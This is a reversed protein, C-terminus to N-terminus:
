WETKVKTFLDLWEPNMDEILSIKKKRSGAKIQKERAIAEEISYFSEFYVLETLNYKATFSSPHIKQRHELIRAILDSTVGVYLTTQNKNTFIYITGGKGRNSM